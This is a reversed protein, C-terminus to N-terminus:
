YAQIFGFILRFFNGWIIGNQAVDSGNREESYALETSFLQIIRAAVTLGAVLNFYFITNM